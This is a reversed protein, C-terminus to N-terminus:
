EFLWLSAWLLRCSPLGCGPKWVWCLNYIMYYSVKPSVSITSIIIYKFLHQKAENSWSFIYIVYKGFSCFHVFEIMQYPYSHSYESYCCYIIWTSGEINFWHTGGVQGILILQHKRYPLLLDLSDICFDIHLPFHSLWLGKFPQTSIQWRIELRQVRMVEQLTQIKKALCGAQKWSPKISQLLATIAAPEETQESPNLINWWGQGVPTLIESVCVQTIWSIHTLGNLFNDHLWSTIAKPKNCIPVQQM